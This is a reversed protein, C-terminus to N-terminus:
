KQLIVGLIIGAFLVAYSLLIWWWLKRWSPTSVDGQERAMVNWAQFGQKVAWRDYFFVLAGGPISGVVSIVWWAVITWASLPMISCFQFSKNALPMAVISIGGIALNTVVLVHPFRLVLFHSYKEGMVSVLLLGHFFVWGFLVPFVFVILIQFIWSGQIFHVTIFTFLIATFAVASPMVDGTTEILSIRCASKKDQNEALLWPVFALPGLIAIAMVLHGFGQRNIRSIIYFLILCAFVLAIWIMGLRGCLKSKEQIQGYRHAAERKVEDPFLM